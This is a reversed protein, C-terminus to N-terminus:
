RIHNSPLTNFHSYTHQDLNHLLNCTNFDHIIKTLCDYILEYVHLIFIM